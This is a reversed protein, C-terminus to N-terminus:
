CRSRRPGARRDGARRARALLRILPEPSEVLAEVRRMSEDTTAARRRRRELEALLRAAQTSSSRGPRGPRGAGRLLPLPRRPRPRRGRPLAAPHRRRAPRPRRGGGGAGAGAPPEAATLWRDLLALVAPLQDAIRQQALFIRYVAEELAPGPELDHSATTGCRGPAAPGPLERAAGGARRRPLAPLRPLVGAPQPGAPRGGGGRQGPPQPVARWTPSPPSCPSSARCCSPDDAGALEGRATGYEAVLQRAYGASVDYGTILAQLAALLSLARDRPERRPADGASRAARGARGVGGRRRRRRPRHEAAAAGADVQANAAALVERVRGAFPARVATEM